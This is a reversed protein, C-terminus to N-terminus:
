TGIHHCAEATDWEASERECSNREWWALVRLMEGGNRYGALAPALKRLVDSYRHEM